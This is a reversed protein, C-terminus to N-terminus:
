KRPRLSFLYSRFLVVCYILSYNLAFIGIAVYSSSFFKLGIYFAVFSSILFYINWFLDEQQRGVIIYVYSLPSVIFKLLYFGALLQSYIGSDRWQEGFFFVFLQPGFFFIGLAPLVSLVILSKFTKVFISRCTGSINYDEIARQRFVESISSSLLQIPLSLMRVSLNYTGVAGAGSFLSLMFTPLQNSLRNIFEAPLSYKPFNIHRRAIEKVQSMRLTRWAFSNTKSLQWSMFLSPVVQGVMMGMFLGFPGIHFLGISISVTPVLLSTLVGNMTLISYKKQRNAWIRFLENQGGFFISIPLLILWDSLLENHLATAIWQDFFLVVILTLIAVVGNIIRVLWLAHLADQDKEELMVAQIYQMTSLAGMVGAIGMFVGLTGYYERDYIRYLVPATGL